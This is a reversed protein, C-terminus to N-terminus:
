TDAPDLDPGHSSPYVRGWFFCLKKFMAKRKPFLTACEDTIVGLAM